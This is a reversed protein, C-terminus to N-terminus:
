DREDSADACSNKGSEVEEFLILRIRVLGVAWRILILFLGGSVGLAIPGSKWMMAIYSATMAEPGEAAPPFTRVMAGVLNLLVM